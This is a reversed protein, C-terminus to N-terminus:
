LGYWYTNAKELICICSKNLWSDCMYLSSCTRWNLKTQKKVQIFLCVVQLWRKQAPFRLNYLVRPETKFVTHYLLELYIGGWNYRFLESWYKLIIRSFFHLCLHHRSTFTEFLVFIRWLDGIVLLDININWSMLVRYYIHSM